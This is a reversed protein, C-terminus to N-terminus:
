RSASSSRSVSAAAGTVDVVVEESPASTGNANRARVRLFYRGAPVGSTRFELGNVDVTALDAAGPRSGAELVYSVTPWGVEAAQWQIRVASGVVTAVIAVPPDPPGPRVEVRIENSPASTGFANKAEVRVFYVGAPATIDYSTEASATDLQAIPVGGPTLSATVVYSTAATGGSPPPVELPQLDTPARAWRLRVADGSVLSVLDTPAGPAVPTLEPYFGIAASYEIDLMGRAAAVPRLWIKPNGTPGATAADLESGAYVRGGRAALNLSSRLATPLVTIRLGPDVRVLRLEGMSVSAWLVGDETTMGLVGAPPVGPDLAGSDRTVAAFGRFPLPPDQFFLSGRLFVRDPTVAADSICPVSAPPRGGLLCTSTTRPDWDTLSGSLRVAAGGRRLQYVDSEQGRARDVIGVAYLADADVVIRSVYAPAGASTQMDLRWSPDRSGSSVDFRRVSGGSAAYVFPGELAMAAVAALESPSLLTAPEWPLLEGTVANAAALNRRAVRDTAHIEWLYMASGAPKVFSVVLPFDWGDLAGTALDLAAMTDRPAGPVFDGQVLLRPGAVVVSRITSAPDDLWSPANWGAAPSGTPLDFAAVAHAPGAGVRVDRGAIVLRGASAAALVTDTGQITVHSWGPPPQWTALDYLDVNTVFQGSEATTWYVLARGSLPIVGSSGPVPISAVQTVSGDAPNFFGLARALNGGYSVAVLGGAAAGVVNLNSPAPWARLLDGTRADLEVVYHDLQLPIISPVAAGSYLRDGIQIAPGWPSAGLPLRVAFQRDFRCDPGVRVYGVDDAVVFPGAGDRLSSAGFGRAVKVLQQVGGAGTGLLSQGDRACGPDSTLTLSALDLFGEFPAIGRGIKTFQGGFYIAEGSQAAGVIQGNTVVRWTPIPAVDAQTSTTGALLLVATVLKLRKM